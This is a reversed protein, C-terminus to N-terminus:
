AALAGRSSELFFEKCGEPRGNNGETTADKKQM